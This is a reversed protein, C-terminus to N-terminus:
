HRPSTLAGKLFSLATAGAVSQSREPLYAVSIQNSLAKKNGGFRYVNHGQNELSQLHYGPLIGAGMGCLVLKSVGQCDGLYARVDLDMKKRPLHHAFWKHLVPAEELYAIYPLKEYYEKTHSVPGLSEVLEPSACLELTEDYVRETRVRPDMSFDDVFAFDLDGNLLKGNMEAALGIEAKVIVRPHEKHFAAILPLLVNYAFEPPMGITVRGKLETGSLQWFARELEYMGRACGEYLTKAASTPVLRQHVRDFLKQNLVDELSKVHQSVGSQTLHLEKAAHTMSRHRFVVAFVRLQNLNLQEVM